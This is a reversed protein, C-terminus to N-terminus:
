APTADDEGNKRRRWRERIAARRRAVELRAPCCGAHNYTDNTTDPANTLAWSAQSAHAPDRMAMDTALADRFWHPSIARKFTKKTLEQVKKRISQQSQPTGRGTVWLAAGTYLTRCGGYSSGHCLIPRVERWYSELWPALDDHLMRDYVTDGKMEHEAFVLWWQDMFRLHRGKGVEIMTLNSLRLALRALWAIQLGTRFRVCVRHVRWLEANSVANWKQENSISTWDRGARLEDLAKQMIAVGFGLMVDPPEFYKARTPDRPVSKISARIHSRECGPELVSVVEAIGSL